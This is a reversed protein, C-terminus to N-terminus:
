SANLPFTAQSAQLQPGEVPLEVVFTAGRGPQSEVQISGGHAEVFRKCISLGLGVGKVLGAQPSRYFREFIRELEAAAIGIGRDEVQIELHEGARRARVDVPQDAPSYKLANDLLNVLVQAILVPDMNVLPLNPEIHVRIQRDRAVGGLQELASGLAERLKSVFPRHLGALCAWVRVTGPIRKKTDPDLPRPPQFLSPDVVLSRDAM